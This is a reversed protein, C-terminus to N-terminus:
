LGAGPANPFVEDLKRRYKDSVAGPKWAGSNAQCKETCQSTDPEGNFGKEPFTVGGCDTCKFVEEGQDYPGGEKMEWYKDFKGM